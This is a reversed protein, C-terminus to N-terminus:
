KAKALEKDGPLAPAKFYEGVQDVINAPAPEHLPIEDHISTEANVLKESVDLRTRLDNVLEKVRGLQSDDVVYSSTTQAAAVMQRRAELGEIEVELQRRAALMGELKQRNADVSKQRAELIKQWNSRTAEGTKYRAFRNSLDQQVQERSYKRAGYQFAAKDKEKELDTKLRLVDDKERTLRAELAAIREELQKVEVEDKAIAEKNRKVEPELDKMMQRARDLEVEVPISGRVSDRLSAVSTRVYSVADRGFFLLSLGVVVGAGILAKKIM